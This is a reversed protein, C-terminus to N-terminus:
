ILIIAIGLGAIIGLSKYLKTNKREEEEALTIQADIFKSILEIESIQGSQM